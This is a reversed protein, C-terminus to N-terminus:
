VTPTTHSHIKFLVDFQSYRTEHLGEGFAVHVLVLLYGKGIADVVPKPEFWLPREYGMIEGFVAGYDQM